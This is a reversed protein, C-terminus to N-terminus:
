HQLSKKSKIHYAKRGFKELLQRVREGSIGYAEGLEKYTPKEDIYRKVIEKQTDTMNVNPLFKALGEEEIKHLYISKM